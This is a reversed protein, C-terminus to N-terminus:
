SGTKFDFEQTNWYLVNGSGLTFYGSSSQVTNSFFLGDSTLTLTYPAVAWSTTTPEPGTPGQPGSAPGTVGQNGQNGQNGQSGQTGDVGIIGTPGTLGQNGQPGPPGGYAGTV